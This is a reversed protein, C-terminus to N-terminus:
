MATPVLRMPRNTHISVMTVTGMAVPSLWCSKTKIRAKISIRLLVWHITNRNSFSCTELQPLKRAMWSMGSGKWGPVVSGTMRAKWDSVMVDRM